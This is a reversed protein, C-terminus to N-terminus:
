SIGEDSEVQAKCGDFVATADTLDQGSLTYEKAVIKSLGSDDSSGVDYTVRCTGFAAGTGDSELSISVIRSLTKAM